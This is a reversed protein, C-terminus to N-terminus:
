IAKKIEDETPADDMEEDTPVQPLREIAEDNISSPSNLVGDFHEAWRALVREKDTLLTKGDVSLLPSTGSKTPGYLEKLDSFFNKM